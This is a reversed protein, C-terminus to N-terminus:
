FPMLVSLTFMVKEKLKNVQAVVVHASKWTPRLSRYSIFFHLMDICLKTDPVPLASM